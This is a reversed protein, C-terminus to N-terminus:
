IATNEDYRAKHSKDCWTSSDPPWLLTKIYSSRRGFARFTLGPFLPICEVYQTTYLKANLRFQTPNLNDPIRYLDYAHTTTERTKICYWLQRSLSCWPKGFWCRLREFHDFCLCTSTTLVKKQFLITGNNIQRNWNLLIVIHFHLTM